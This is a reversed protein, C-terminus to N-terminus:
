TLIIRLCTSPKRMSVASSGRFSLLRDIDSLMWGLVPRKLANPLETFNFSHAVIPTKLRFLRAFFGCWAGLAPGHSVIAQAKQHNALRVAEFAARLRALNLFSIRREVINRPVARVFEFRIGTDSLPGEIWRWRPDGFDSCCIVLGSSRTPYANLAVKAPVKM